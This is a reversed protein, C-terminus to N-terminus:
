RMSSTSWVSINPNATPATKKRRDRETIQPMVELVRSSPITFTVETGERLKSRFDFSGGHMQVLAQVINLGLGTGQEASKIAISGQGFASLVIPIEEEPIGPGTDRISVYQGGGATWGVKITISGGTPTFKLANSLINLTVQRMAREDAWVKPLNDEYQEILAIGKNKAKLSMMHVCDEVSYVLTTAEENLKYRGAEIRSLDLIENILHLLHQGSNHIDSVYDRYTVNEMPGLLENKIVESFGLIANLPTRLEHSMTALFRSKALNAEESKRRSEDSIAKAQELEAILSDKEARSEVTELASAHLRYGLMTFFLQVGITMAAMITAHPMGMGVPEIAPYLAFGASATLTIPLSVALMAGRVNSSLMVGVAVVILMTAFRFVDAAPNDAGPLVFLSAWAIGQMADLSIFRRRWSKLNSEVQPESLFRKSFLVVSFHAALTLFGWAMVLTKDAWLASIFGFMVILLPIAYASTVRNRAHLLTLEYDFAPRVGNTSALQERVSKVTRAVNRKREARLTNQVTKDTGVTAATPAM